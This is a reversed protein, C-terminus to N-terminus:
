KHLHIVAGQLPGGKVPPLHDHQPEAPRTEHGRAGEAKQLPLKRKSKAAGPISVKLHKQQQQTPTPPTSISGLSHHQLHALTENRQQETAAKPPVGAEASILRPSVHQSGSRTTPNLRRRKLVGEHDLRSSESSKQGSM